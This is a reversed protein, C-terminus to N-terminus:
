RQERAPFEAVQPLAPKVPISSHRTFLSSFNLKVPAFPTLPSINKLTETEETTEQFLHHFDPSSLRPCGRPLSHDLWKQLQSPLSEDVATLYPFEDLCLMWRRKQLALIELLEPWTKPVLQTELQPRLDAFVQQIQLDRQAEIAQSYLGDRPQLWQRLLRTKGVRRRGFVVLLGGRKAAADLERLEADRNVFHM